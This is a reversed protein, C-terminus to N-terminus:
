TGPSAVTAGSTCAVTTHIFHKDPPCASHFSFSHPPITLEL